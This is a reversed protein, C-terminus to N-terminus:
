AALLRLPTPETEVQYALQERFETPGLGAVRAQAALEQPDDFDGRALRIM